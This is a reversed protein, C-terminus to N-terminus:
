RLRRKGRAAAAPEEIVLTEDLDFLLARSPM